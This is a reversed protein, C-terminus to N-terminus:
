ERIQKVPQENQYPTMGKKIGDWTKQWQSIIILLLIIMFGIMIKENTSLQKLNKM